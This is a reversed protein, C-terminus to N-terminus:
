ASAHAGEVQSRRAGLLRQRKAGDSKKLEKNNRFNAFSLINDVIGCKAV